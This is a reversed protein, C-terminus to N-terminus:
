SKNKFLKKTLGFPSIDMTKNPSGIGTSEYAHTWLLLLKDSTEKFVVVIGKINM